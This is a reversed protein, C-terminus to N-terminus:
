SNKASISSIPRLFPSPTRSLYFPPLFVLLSPLVLGKLNSSKTKENKPRPGEVFKTKQKHDRERHLEDDM